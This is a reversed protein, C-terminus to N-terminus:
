ENILKAIEVGAIQYGHVFSSALCQSIALYFEENNNFKMSQLSKIYEEVLKDSKPLIDKSIDPNLCKTLIKNTDM